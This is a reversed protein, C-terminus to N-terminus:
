AGEEPGLLCSKSRDNFRREETEAAAMSAATAAAAAAAEGTMDELDGRRGLDVLFDKDVRESFTERSTASLTTSLVAFGM